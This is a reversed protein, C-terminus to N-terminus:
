LDEKFGPCDTPVARAGEPLRGVQSLDGVLTLDIDYGAGMLERESDLWHFTYPALFRNKGPLRVSSKLPIIVHVRM